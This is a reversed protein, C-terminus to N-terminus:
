PALALEVARAAHLETTDFLPVPTDKQGLLLGIETCGLIIGEAGRAALRDVIQLYNQRSAPRIVGHVLEQFIVHNVDTQDKDDPVLVAIGAAEVRDRYFAQQMTYRTGLLGVTHIGHAQLAAITPDAIHVLPIHVAAEIEGAILHMTNTCLLLFDAGAREVAQAAQALDAATEAWAGRQQAEEIPQFDVSFMACRASHQGGLMRHVGENILRYYELSSQWSMGGILGITKM